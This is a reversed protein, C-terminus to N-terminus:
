RSRAASRALRWAGAVPPGASPRLAAALEAPLSSAIASRLAAAVGGAMAVAVVPEECREATTVILETLAAVARALLAAAVPDADAHEVVLPALLAFDAPPTSRARGVLAEVGVGWHAQVADALAGEPDRGDLSRLAARVAENGLWAGSGEDGVRSGWGGVRVRADDSSAGVAVSGTGAVLLVRAGPGVLERPVAGELAVWADGQLLLREPAVGGAQLAAMLPEREHPREVGAVGISVYAGPLGDAPAGARQWAAAIVRLIASAAAPAGVAYPNCAEHLEAAGAPPESPDHTAPAVWARGRTGGGDVGVLWPVAGSM